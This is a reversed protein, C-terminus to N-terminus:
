NYCYNIELPEKNYVRCVEVWLAEQEKNNGPVKHDGVLTAPVNQQNSERHNLLNTM